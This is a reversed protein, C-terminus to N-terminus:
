APLTTTKTPDNVFRIGKAELAARTTAEVAGNFNVNELSVLAPGRVLFAKTVEEDDVLDDTNFLLIGAANAPTAIPIMEGSSIECVLGADFKATVGSVNKFIYADRNYDPNAEWNIVDGITPRETSKPM